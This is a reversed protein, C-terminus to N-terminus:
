AGVLPCKPRKWKPALILLAGMSLHKQPREEQICVRMHVQWSLPYPVRAVKASIAVHCESLSCGRYGWLLQGLTGLTGHGPQKRKLYHM